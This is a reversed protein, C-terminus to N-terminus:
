LCAIYIYSSCNTYCIYKDKNYIANLVFYQSQYKHHFSLQKQLKDVTESDYVEYLIQM